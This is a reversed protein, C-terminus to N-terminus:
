VVITMAPSTGAMWTKRQRLMALRPHGACPRRMVNVIRQCCIVLLHRAPATRRHHAGPDRLAHPAAGREEVDDCSEPGIPRGPGASAPRTAYRQMRAARPRAGDRAQEDRDQDDRAQEDRGQARRGRAARCIEASGCSGRKEICGYGQGAGSCRTTEGGGLSLSRDGAQAAASALVFGAILIFKRMNTDGRSTSASVIRPPGLSIHSLDRLRTGISPSRSRNSPDSFSTSRLRSLPPEILRRKLEHRASAAVPLSVDPRRRTKHPERAPVQHLQAGLLGGM